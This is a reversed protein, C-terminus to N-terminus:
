MHQGFYINSVYRANLQLPELLHDLYLDQRLFQNMGCQKLFDSFFHLIDIIFTVDFALIIPKQFKKLRLPGSHYCVNLKLNQPLRAVVLYFVCNKNGKKCKKLVVTCEYSLHLFQKMMKQPLQGEIM